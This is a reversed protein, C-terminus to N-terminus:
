LVGIDGTSRPLSLTPMADTTMAMLSFLKAAGAEAM